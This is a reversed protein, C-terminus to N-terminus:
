AHAGVQREMARFFQGILLKSAGGLVFLGARAVGGQARLDGRYRVTTEGPQPGDVIEIQADGQVSGKGGSGSAVLGFSEPERPDVVRVNGSYSGKLAGIGVRMTIDFAGPGVVEFRECGPISARLSDPDLIREWVVQRPAQFRHEGAIEM